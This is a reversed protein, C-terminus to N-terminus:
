TQRRDKLAREFGKQEEIELRGGGMMSALLGLWESYPMSMFAQYADDANKRPNPREAM